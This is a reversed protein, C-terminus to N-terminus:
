CRFSNRLHRQRCGCTARYTVAVNRRRECHVALGEPIQTVSEHVGHPGVKLCQRRIRHVPREGILHPPFDLLHLKRGLSDRGLFDQFEEVLAHQRVPAALIMGAERGEYVRRCGLQAHQRREGRRHRVSATGAALVRGDVQFLQGDAPEHLEDAERMVPAVANEEATSGIRVPVAHLDRTVPTGPNVAPVDPVFAELPMGPEGHVHRGLPMGAQFLGGERETEAAGALHGNVGVEPHVQTVQARLHRGVAARTVTGEEDRRVGPAHLGSGDVREIVESVEAVAFTEPQVHVAGVAPESREVGAKRLPERAQFAGVGDGDVRM